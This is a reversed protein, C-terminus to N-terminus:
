EDELAGRRDILEGEIEKVRSDSLPYFSLILISLVGIGAPILTFLAILGNLSEETQIADAEFGLQSM